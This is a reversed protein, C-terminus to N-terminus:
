RAPRARHWASPRAVARTAARLWMGLFSLVDGPRVRPVDPPEGIIQRALVLYLGESVLAFKAELSLVVLVVLASATASAKLATWLLGSDAAIAVLVLATLVFVRPRLWLDAALVAASRPSRAAIRVLDACGTVLLRAHGALWRARPAALASAHPAPEDFAAPDPLARVRLGRALLRLTAESDEAMTRPPTGFALRFARPSLGMGKGRLRVPLGAADRVADEVRTAVAVSLAEVRAAGSPPNGAPRVPLQFAEAGAPVQLRSLFGEPLRTDADFVLVFDATEICPVLKQAAEFLVAGKSPGAPSKVLVQAGRARAAEEVRPDDGDLLVWVDISMGTVGERLLDGVIGLTRTGEARAPILALLRGPRRLPEEPPTRWRVLRRWRSFADLAPVAM